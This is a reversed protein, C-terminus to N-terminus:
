PLLSESDSQNDTGPSSEADGFGEGYSQAILSMIDMVEQRFGMRWNGGARDVAAQIIAHAKEIYEDETM